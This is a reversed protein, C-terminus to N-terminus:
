TNNEILRCLLHIISLHIEQILATQNNKVILPVDVLELLNKTKESFLGITKLNKNRATEFALRINESHRDDGGADSTTMGLAIDGENGLAEIQRSFITSFSEDNAQATIISTDTTLAIAPIAMRKKEFRGILEAAFHQAEAASGGNGFILLKGGKKFSENLLVSARQIEEFFDKDASIFSYIKEREKFWNEIENM